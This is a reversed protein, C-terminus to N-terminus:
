QQDEKNARGVFRQRLARILPQIEVMANSVFSLGFLAVGFIVADEVHDSKIDLYAVLGRGFYSGLFYGSLLSWFREAKSLAAPMFRLSVFSGIAAPLTSSLFKFTAAFLVTITPEAMATKEM